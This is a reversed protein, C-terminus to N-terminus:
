ALALTVTDMFNKLYSGGSGTPNGALYSNYTSTLDKMADPSYNKYMDAGFREMNLMDATPDTYLNNYDYGGLYSKNGKDFERKAGALIEAIYPETPAYPKVESTGSENTKTKQRSGGISMSM